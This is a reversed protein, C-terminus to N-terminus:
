SSEVAAQSVGGMGGLVDEGKSSLTLPGEELAVSGRVFLTSERKRLEDEPDLVEEDVSVRDAAGELLGVSSRVLLTFERRPLM